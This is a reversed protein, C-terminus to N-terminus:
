LKPEKGRRAHWFMLIRVEQKREDREFYVHYETRELLTRKLWPRRRTPRPTGFHPITRLQYVLHALEEDFLDLAAPRTELWRKRAAKARAAARPTFWVRV